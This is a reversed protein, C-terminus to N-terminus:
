NNLMRVIEFYISKNFFFFLPDEYIHTFPYMVVSFVFLSLLYSLGIQRQRFLINISLSSFCFTSSINNQIIDYSLYYTSCFATVCAKTIFELQRRRPM